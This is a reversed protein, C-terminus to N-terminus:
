FKVNLGFIFSRPVSYDFGPSEPDVIGEAAKYLYGINKVQAYLRVSDFFKLSSNRYTYGLSLEQLKIHDGDMYEGTGRYDHTFKNADARPFQNSPNEPTWYDYHSPMWRDGNSVLAGGYMNSRITHGWKSNIMVSLDFNKYKFLHRTSALWKPSRQGIIKKDENGAITGSGDLDKVKVSGPKANYKAAEEEEGLQWIGDFVNDYYVNIPEGIFWKNGVMDESGDLLEVIEEWNRSANWSASWSFDTNNIIQTELNLEIGRTETAGINQRIKSYGTLTPLRREMLLNDTETKYLEISGSIKSKLVSFELGLNTTKSVEWTLDKNAVRDPRFVYFKDEGFLYSKQALGSLTEYPDIATNGVEGYSLRLKLNSLWNIDKMFAEESIRWALAMSPFYQWRQDESLRSSGDRRVALNLFYKSAYDYQGRVLFSMLNWKSYGSEIQVNLANTQLRHYTTENVPQDEGYADTDESRNEVIEGVLDVIVNHQDFKKNFTLVSNLNYDMDRKAYKYSKSKGGKRNFSESSAFFNHQYDVIEAGYNTRFNLYDTFKINIYSNFELTNTIRDDEIAGDEFDFLPNYASTERPSPHAILEGDDDYAPGLPSLYTMNTTGIKSPDNTLKNQFRSTLGVTVYKNLRHDLTLSLNIQEQQNTRYYGEEKNYGLSLYMDTKEGRHSVSVHHNQVKGDRFILDEWDTFRRNDISEQEVSTFINEPLPNEWGNAYRRGDEVFKIYEDPSQMDVLNIKNVGYYANYTVSYDSSNGRKTTVLIVGNAARSGYIATAAADKLVEVSAVDYSSITSLSGPVGDVIVLPQANANLSRQGRIQIGADDGPHTVAGIDVGAVAGQLAEKMNIAPVRALEEGKVSSIAGTLSSKKRVGYGVVVVEDLGMADEKMTINIVSRNGVKIEQTIYGIISFAITKESANELSITFNGEANTVVGDTTGKVIVNVGVLPTGTEDLVNGKLTKKQAMINMCLLLMM